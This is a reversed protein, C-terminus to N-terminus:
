NLYTNQTSLLVTENLRSKQSGVVDDETVWTHGMGYGSCEDTIFATPVSHTVGPNGLIGCCINQILFLSFLKGILVRIQLGPQSILAKDVGM